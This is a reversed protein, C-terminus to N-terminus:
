KKRWEAKLIEITEQNLKGLKEGFDMWIGLLKENTSKDKRQLLSITDVVMNNISTNVENIIERSEQISSQKQGKM